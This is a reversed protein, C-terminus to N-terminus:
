RKASEARLAAFRAGAPTGHQPQFALQILEGVVETTNAAFYTGSDVNYMWADYAHAGDVHIEYHQLKYFVDGGEEFDGVRADAPLDKGDYLKGAVRVQERQAPALEELSTITRTPQHSLPM